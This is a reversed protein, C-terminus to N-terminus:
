LQGSRQLIMRAARVPCDAAHQIGGVYAGGEDCYLCEVGAYTRTWSRRILDSLVELLDALELAAQGALVPDTQRAAEILQDLANM